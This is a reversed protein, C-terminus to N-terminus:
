SLYIDRAPDIIDDLEKQFLRVTQKFDDNYLHSFRKVVDSFAGETEKYMTALTVSTAMGGYTLDTYELEAATEALLEQWNTGNPCRFGPIRLM